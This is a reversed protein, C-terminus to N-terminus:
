LTAAMSWGTRPDFADGGAWYMFQEEPLRGVFEEVIQMAVIVDITRSNMFSFMSSLGGSPSDGNQLSQVVVKEFPRYRATGKEDKLFEDREIDEPTKLSEDVERKFGGVADSKIPEDEGGSEGGRAFATDAPRKRAM